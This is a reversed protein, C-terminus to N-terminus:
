PALPASGLPIRAFSKFIGVETEEGFLHVESAEFSLASARADLKQRLEALTLRMEEESAFRGLTIHAHFERQPAYEALAARVREHLERVPREDVVSLYLVLEPVIFVGAEGLTVTFPEAGALHRRLRGAIAEDSANTQGPESEFPGLLTLHPPVRRFWEPDRKRRIEDAFSAVEDPAVIVVARSRPHGVSSAGSVPM